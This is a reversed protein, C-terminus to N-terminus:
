KSKQKLNETYKKFSIRHCERCYTRGTKVRGLNDGSLPHGNKCVTKKVPGGRRGKQMRDVINDKNTGLFLHAPNICPPNDCKHLVHLGQPIEGFADVYALRHVYQLKNNLSARGYGDAGRAGTYEFCDGVKVGRTLIAERTNIV